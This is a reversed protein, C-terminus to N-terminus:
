TAVIFISKRESNWNKAQHKGDNELGPDLIQTERQQMTDALLQCYSQFPQEKALVGSVDMAVNPPEMAPPANSLFLANSPCDAKYHGLELCQWCPVRAAHEASLLSLQEERPKSQLDPCARLAHQLDHCLFCPPGKKKKKLSERRLMYSLRNGREETTEKIQVTIQGNIPKNYKQQTVFRPLCCPALCAYPCKENGLGNVLGCFSPGLKKCLHIGTMAVPFPLQLLRDLVQDYHHLNTNAWIDIPPRNEEECTVNAVSLHHWNIDAKELLVIRDLNKPQLYSLLFSFLGKGGCVDVAIYKHNPAHELLHHLAVISEEVEHQLSTKNLVSQMDDRGAWLSGWKRLIQVVQYTIKPYFNPAALELSDATRWVRWFPFNRQGQSPSDDNDDNM